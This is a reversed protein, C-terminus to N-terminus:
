TFRAQGLPKRGHGLKPKSESRRAALTTLVLTARFSKGFARCGFLITITLAAGLAVPKGHSKTFRASGGGVSLSTMVRLWIMSTVM